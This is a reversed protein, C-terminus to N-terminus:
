RVTGGTDQLGIEVADEGAAPTCVGVSDEDERVGAAGPMRYRGAPLKYEGFGKKGTYCRVQEPLTITRCPLEVTM